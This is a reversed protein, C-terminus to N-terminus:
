PNLIKITPPLDTRNRMAWSSDPVCTCEKHQEIRIWTKKTINTNLNKIEVEIQEYEILTPACSQDKSSCCGSHSDCREQVIYAPQKPEMNRMISDQMNVLDKLNYSRLRPKCPFAEKRSCRIADRFSTKKDSLSSSPAALLVMTQDMATLILIFFRLLSEKTPRGQVMTKM